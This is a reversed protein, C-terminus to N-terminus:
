NLNCILFVSKELFVFLVSELLIWFSVCCNIQQPLNKNDARANNTVGIRLSDFRLTDISCHRLSLKFVCITWQLLFSKQSCVWLGRKYKRSCRSIDKRFNAMISVSSRWKVEKECTKSKNSKLKEKLYRLSVNTLLSIHKFLRIKFYIHEKKSIMVTKTTQSINGTRNYLYLCM